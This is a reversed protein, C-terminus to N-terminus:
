RALVLKHTVSMEGALLRLLYIGSSALQGDSTTGDWSTEYIVPEHYGQFLETVRRGRIDYICLHVQEIRNM